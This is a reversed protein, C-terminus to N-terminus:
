VAVDAGRTYRRLATVVPRDSLRWLHREAAAMTTARRERAAQVRPRNGGATRHQAAQDIHRIGRPNTRANRLSAHEPRDLSRYGPDVGTGDDRADNESV